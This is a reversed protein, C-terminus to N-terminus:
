MKLLEPGTMFDLVPKFSYSFLMQETLHRLRQKPDSELNLGALQSCLQDFSLPQPEM